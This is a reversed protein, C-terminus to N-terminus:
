DCPLAGTLVRVDDLEGNFFAGSPTWVVNRGLHPSFSSKLLGPAVAFSTKRAGNLCVHVNGNTHVVRVFQWSGDAPYATFADDFLLPPTARTCTTVDLKPPTTNVIAIGLGGGGGAAGVDLDLDSFLWADYPDVFGRLKVWFQVTVDHSKDLTGTSTFYADSTIDAAKGLEPFPGAALLPPTDSSSYLTHTFDGGCLNDVTNGAAAAFSMAVQCTSPFAAGTPNVFVHLGVDTAGKTTPALAVLFRDGALADLTIARDLVTGATAVGTYLVDERSNRYIRITQDDGAPVYAHLSLQVVQATPTTIELAPDAASTAGASSVLLAGPLAKCAAAQPNAACTTIHNGPDVGTMAMGAVTMAAWTRDRHDDLYRWRAGAGGPTGNFDGAADALCPAPCTAPVVPTGDTGGGGDVAGHADFLSQGCGGALGCSLVLVLAVGLGGSRRILVM